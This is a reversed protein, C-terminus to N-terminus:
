VILLRHINKKVFDVLLSHIEILATLVDGDPYLELYIPYLSDDEKSMIDAFSKQLLYLRLEKAHKTTFHFTNNNLSNDNNGNTLPDDIEKGCIRCVVKRTIM